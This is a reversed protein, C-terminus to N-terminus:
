KEIELTINKRRNDLPNKNKYVVFGERIGLLFHALLLSNQDVVYPQGNGRKKRLWVHGQNVVLDLDDEDILAAGVVQGYRDKLTISIGDEVPEYVNPQAKVDYIELNVRRNDLVDGSMHRIPANPSCALVAAAVPTRVAHGGKFDKSEVVQCDFLTHWVARWNKFAHVKDFDVPDFLAVVPKGKKTYATLKGLQGEIEIHHQKHEVKNRGM